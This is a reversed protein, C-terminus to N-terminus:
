EQGATLTAQLRYFMAHLHERIYPVMRTILKTYGAVHLQDVM